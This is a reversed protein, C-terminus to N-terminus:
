GDDAARHSGHQSVLSAPRYVSVDDATYDLRLGVARLYRIVSPYDPRWNQHPWPTMWHKWWLLVWGVHLGALDRREASIQAPTEKTGLRAAILGTYFPHESIVKETHAPVWSTYSDGRPHGDATALVLAEPSLIKGYWPVGDIGFPADVVVSGSHDAAIPADVAPLATPMIPQYPAFGPWGAELWALVVVVALVVRSRQRLWEVASGALLAAGLLGLLIFRDAERFSALGPVRVLWTYPLLLSVREGQWTQALPTYERGLIFLTPGLAMAACGLWLCTLPRTGPRRWGVLVGLAALASLVLGFTAIAEGVTHAKYLAAMGTLGLDAVRPSPAFMSPLEGAFKMYQSTPPNSHGSMAAQAMVVLQPGAVVLGTVTATATARLAAAGHDRWLWPALVLAALIVAMVSLEQDVLMSAGLVAGLVAGRWVTPARRLRVATELAMPLFVCGAATHQHEWDQFTLTASLGFFGGAAVAGLTPLWLKAARWMAYSACGPILIAALNYSASPGFALTVPAMVLGLLPTLTDFGLQVGVPDALAHTYFPNGLHVLQHAVWWMNWVYEAQDANMPLRGTLYQARPWTVAVGAAIYAALVAVERGWGRARAARRPPDAREPAPKEDGPGTLDSPDPEGAGAEAATGTM